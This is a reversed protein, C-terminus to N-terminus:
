AMRATVLQPAWDMAQDCALYLQVFEPDDLAANKTAVKRLM